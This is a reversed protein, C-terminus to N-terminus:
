NWIKSLWREFENIEIQSNINVFFDRMEENVDGYKKRVGILRQIAEKAQANYPNKELISKYIELAEAKYGQIEYINAKTLTSM